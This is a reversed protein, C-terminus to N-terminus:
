RRLARASSTLAGACRCPILRGAPTASLRGGCHECMHDRQQGQGEITATAEPKLASSLHESTDQTSTLAPRGVPSTFVAEKGQSHRIPMRNKADNVATSQNPQGNPSPDCEPETERLAWRAARIKLHRSVGLQSEAKGQHRASGPQQRIFDALRRAFGLVEDDSARDPPQNPPLTVRWSRASPVRYLLGVEALQRRYQDVTERTLGCWLALATASATCGRSGNDLLYIKALLIRQGGSLAGDPTALIAWFPGMPKRLSM